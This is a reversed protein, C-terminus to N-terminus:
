FGHFIATLKGLALTVPSAAKRFILKKMAIKSSTQSCNGSAVTIFVQSLTNLLPGVLM